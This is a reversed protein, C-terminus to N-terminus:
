GQFSDIDLLLDVKAFPATQHLHADNPCNIWSIHVSMLVRVQPTFHLKSEELYKLVSDEGEEEEDEGGDGEELPPMDPMMGLIGPMVMSPGFGYSAPSAMTPASTNTEIEM